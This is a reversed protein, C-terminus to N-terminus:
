PTHLTPLHIPIKNHVSIHLTIKTLLVIHLRFCEVAVPLCLFSPFKWGGGLELVLFHSTRSRAYRYSTKFLKECQGNGQFAKSSKCSMPPSSRADGLSFPMNVIAVSLQMITLLIDQCAKFRHQVRILFSPDSTYLYWFVNM